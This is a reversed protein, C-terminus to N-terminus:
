GERKLIEKVWEKGPDGGWAKHMVLGRDEWPEKGAPVKENGSHRAFFSNMRKITELSVPKRKALQASRYWGTRTGAKGATKPYKKKWMRAQRAERAVEIPPKFTKAMKIYIM